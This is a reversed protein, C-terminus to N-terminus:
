LLFGCPLRARRRALGGLRALAAFDVGAGLHRHALMRALGAIHRAELLAVVFGDLGLQHLLEAVRVDHLHGLQVLDHQIDARALRSGVALLDGLRHVVQGGDGALLRHLGAGLLRDRM